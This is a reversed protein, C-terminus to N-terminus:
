VHARGIKSSFHRLLLDLDIVERLGGELDGDAFLHTATHLVMDEPALTSLDDDIRVAAAILKSGDPRLRATEPLITHHVDVVTNRTGHRLPPLEHMWTRYYRQDYPDLKMAEWGARVLAGEVIDLKDKAVLIDVDSALRGARAPLEAMEYAAGKLLVFPEGTPRLARRVRNVEWRINRVHHAAVLRASVLHDRVRVPLGNERLKAESLVALRSLVGARRARRLLRDWEPATLSNLIGPDRLSRYVLEDAVNM